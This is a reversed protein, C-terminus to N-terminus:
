HWDVYYIVYKLMFFADCSRLTVVESTVMWNMVLVLDGEIPQVSTQQVKKGKSGIKFYNRIDVQKCSKGRQLLFENQFCHLPMVDRNTMYNCQEVFKVFVALGQAAEKWM